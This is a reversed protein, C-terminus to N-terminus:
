EFLIEWQLDATLQWVYAAKDRDYDFNQMQGARSVNTRFLNNHRLKRIQNFLQSSIIKARNAYKDRVELRFSCNFYSGKGGEMADGLAAFEEDGIIFIMVIRPLKADSRSFEREIMSLGYHYSILIVDNLAAPTKLILTSVDPGKGYDVSFDYGKRKRNGNITIYTAVNKVLTNALIFETQGATATHSEDVVDTGRNEPDVMTNRFYDLLDREREYIFEESM